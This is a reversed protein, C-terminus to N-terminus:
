LKNNRMQQSITDSDGNVGRIVSRNKQYSLCIVRVPQYLNEISNVTCGVTGLGWWWVVVGRKKQTIPYKQRQTGPKIRRM